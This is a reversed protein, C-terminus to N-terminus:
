LIAIWVEAAFPCHILIHVISEGDVYCLLCINPLYMGKWSFVDLTSIKGLSATLFFFQMKLPISHNWIEKWPIGMDWSFEIFNYCSKVFFSGGSSPYWIRQNPEDVAIAM